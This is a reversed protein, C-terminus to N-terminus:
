VLFRTKDPGPKSFIDPMRFSREWRVRLEYAKITCERLFEDLEFNNGSLLM